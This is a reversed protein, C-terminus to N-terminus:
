RLAEILWSATSGAARGLAIREAAGAGRYAEIAPAYLKGLPKERRRRNLGDVLAELRLPRPALAGALHPLDGTAAV